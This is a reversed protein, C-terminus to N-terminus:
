FKLKMYDEMDRFDMSEYLSRGSKSSELYIKGTGRAKADEILAAAIRHGCGGRRFEPRVYINMLYGNTGSPNDPSRMEEQYCIGGCGVIKGEESVAWVATHSGDKLHRRYYAENERRLRDYDVEPYDSFVERLVEIRWDLLEELESLEAKRIRVAM